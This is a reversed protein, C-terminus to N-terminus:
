LNRAECDNLILRKVDGHASEVRNVWFKLDKKGATNDGHLSWTLFGLKSEPFDPAPRFPVVKKLERIYARGNRSISNYRTINGTYELVNSSIDRTSVWQSTKHNFIVLESRPREVTIQTVGNDIARHARQLSGELTEALRDFFIEDDELKKQIRQTEPKVNLLGAAKSLSFKIFDYFAAGALGATAPYQEILVILDFLVSGRRPAGFFIEAGKLAPARSVIEGTMYAHLTIQLAQSFGWFSTAGDYLNLGKDEVEGGSFRLKLSHKAVEAM